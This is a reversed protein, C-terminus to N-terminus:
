LLVGVGVTLSFRCRLSVGDGGIADDFTNLRIDLVAYLVAVAFADAVCVKVLVILLFFDKRM